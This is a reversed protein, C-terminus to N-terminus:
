HAAAPSSEYLHLAYGRGRVTVVEFDNVGFRKLLRRLRSVYVDVSRDALADRSNLVDLLQRRPVIAGRAEALCLLLAAQGETLHVLTADHSLRGRIRDVKWRGLQLPPATPPWAAPAAGGPHLRRQQLLRMLHARLRRPALPRVLFADAGLELALIEDIEGIDDAQDAVLVIPCALTERLRTLWIGTLGDLGQGHLVVSDFRVAPAMGLAQEPTAVCVCRVGAARMDTADAVPQLAAGIVLVLCAPTAPRAAPPPEMTPHAINSPTTHTHLDM